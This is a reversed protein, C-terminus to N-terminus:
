LDNVPMMNVYHSVTNTREGKANETLTHSM